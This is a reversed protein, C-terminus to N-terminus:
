HISVNGNTVSCAPESTSLSNWPRAIIDSVGCGRQSCKRLSDFHASAFRSNWTLQELEGRTCVDSLNQVCAYSLAKGFICSRVWLWTSTTWLSQSVPRGSALCPQDNATVISRYRCRQGINPLYSHTSALILDPVSISEVSLSVQCQLTLVRRSNRPDIERCRM